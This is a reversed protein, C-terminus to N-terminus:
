RKLRQVNYRCCLGIGIEVNLLLGVLSRAYNDNNLSSLNCMEM